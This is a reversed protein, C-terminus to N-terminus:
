GCRFRLTSQLIFLLVVVVFLHIFKDALTLTLLCFDFSQNLTNLAKHQNWILGFQCGCDAMMHLLIIRMYPKHSPLTGLLKLFCHPLEEITFHLSVLYGLVHTVGFCYVARKSM